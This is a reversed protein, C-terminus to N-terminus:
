GRTMKFLIIKSIQMTNLIFFILIKRNLILRTYNFMKAAASYKKVQVGYWGAGIEASVSTQDFFFLGACLELICM